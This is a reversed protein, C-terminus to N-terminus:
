RSLARRATSASGFVKGVTEATADAFPKAQGASSAWFKSWSLAEPVDLGLLKAKTQAAQSEAIIQGVRENFTKEAQQRQILTLAENDRQQRYTSVARSLEVEYQGLQQEVMSAQVDSSRANHITLATQASKLASDTQTNATQARLLENQEKLNQAQLASTAASVAAAGKNGIVAPQAGGPTSAGGQQYALMPNLGAAKMDAVARQYATGSMREQFAMQSQAAAASASNAEEQGASGFLGGIIPAVVDKLGFDFFGM